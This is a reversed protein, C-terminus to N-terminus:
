GPLTRDLFKVSKPPSGSAHSGLTRRWLSKASLLAYFCTGVTPVLYSPIEMGIEDQNKQLRPEFLRSESWIYLKALTQGGPETCGSSDSAAQMLLRSAGADRPFEAIGDDVDTM